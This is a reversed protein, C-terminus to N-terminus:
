MEIRTVVGHIKHSPLKYFQVFSPSLRKIASFIKWILNDTVIEELGYFITKERIEADRLIKTMNIIEMYGYDIQFVRLGDELDEGFKWNVGFPTELQHLSIIINDEYLINNNFITHSIYSPIKQIDRAFFLATGKIKKVHTYVYSYKERFEVLDMPNMVTFLRKQGYIYIMILTFPIAAIILSWYGGNPIKFTTSFLYVLDVLLVCFAIATRIYQRKLLFIATIMIGTVTMTGMVALGYAAALRESYEFQFLVYLVALLLFWNVSDIYIQSRLEASTYDIKLLPIVRTTIGQYVISFIGSIISQSAIVTAIIALILFPIYLVPAVNYAMEFLINKSEPHQLLFAGQGLYNLVLACFVLGWAKLIPDRGLQGMDAFLAEGGTACLIVQSLIFFATIGNSTVFNIAYYPNLANIIAPVQVIYFIGLVALILFWILMVPGFAWAVKETGKKQFSFLVIAIVAAIIVLISQSIGAVGPILRLGEVASLISIAPTIVGDGILLSVGIIALLSFFTIARGSKLMPLLIEKLVITGGEGKKGLQMALWAYQITVLIILTWVIMSIIGTLNQITPQVLLFIVTLTYIPSTGVDGFVVGMSKIVGKFYNPSHVDSM